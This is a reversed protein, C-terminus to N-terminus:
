LRLLRASLATHDSVNAFSGRGHVHCHQVKFGRTYIRDLKFLPFSSPFSRAYLGHTSKFVEQLHQERALIKGAKQQWDNFDGAIILPAGEPVWSNIRTNLAELQQHRWFAFLGLHVCICHLNQDWDPIKIECHM